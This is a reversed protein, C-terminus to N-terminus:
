ANFLEGKQLKELLDQPNEVHCFKFGMETCPADFIKSDGVHLIEYNSLTDLNSQLLTKAFFLIDPKCMYMEDSFHTFSWWPMTNFGVAESLISGSIFNTNSKISMEYNHSLAILQDVLELNLIPPYSLFASECITRLMMTQAGHLGLHLGLTDWALQASGCVGRSAKHDLKKKVVQYAEAAQEESIGAIFAISATRAASYDPNASILTNWVDFSIHKITM